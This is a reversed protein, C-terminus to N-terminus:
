NRKSFLFINTSLYFFYDSRLARAKWISHMGLKGRNGEINKVIIGKLKCSSNQKIADMLYFGVPIVERSKYVDGVIIAFYKGDRLFQLGNAM